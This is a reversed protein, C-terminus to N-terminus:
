EAKLKTKLSNERSELSQKIVEAEGDVKMRESTILSGKGSISLGEDEKKVTYKERQFLVENRTNKHTRM